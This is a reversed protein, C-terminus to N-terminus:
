DSITVRKVRFDAATGHGDQVFAKRAVESVKKSPFRGVELWRAGTPDRHQLAYYTRTGDVNRVANDALTIFLSENGVM